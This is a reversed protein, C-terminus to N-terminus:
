KEVIGLETCKDILAKIEDLRATIHVIETELDTKESLLYDLTISQEVIEPDKTTKVILSFDDTKIYEKEM